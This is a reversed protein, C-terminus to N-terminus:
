SGRGVAADRAKVVRGVKGVYQTHRFAVFGRYGYIQVGHIAWTAIRSLWFKTHRTAQALKERASPRTLPAICFHITESARNKTV